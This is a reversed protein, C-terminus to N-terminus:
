RPSMPNWTSFGTATCPFRKSKSMRDCLRGIIEIWRVSHGRRSALSQQKAAWFRDYLDLETAFDLTTSGGSRAAEALLVLHLPLSLLEIQRETLAEANLGLEGVTAQVM